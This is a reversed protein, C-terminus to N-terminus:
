RTRGSGAITRSTCTLWSGTTTASAPSAAERAPGGICPATSASSTATASRSGPRAGDFKKDQPDGGISVFPHLHNDAGIRTPGQVVAHSDIRTRDGAEVDDGVVAYPGVVVGAGLRAQPSVIATPHILQRAASGDARRHRGGPRGGPGRGVSELDGALESAPPYRRHAPRRPVVPKRFRAKDVGVIYYRTDKEHVGMALIGTAQAMVELILVGPMVPAEPFHGPFFPENYTVNKLAVVREGPEHELVRDLLAFPYAHPLRDLIEAIGIETM